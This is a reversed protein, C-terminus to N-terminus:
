NIPEDGDEAQNLQNPLAGYPENVPAHMGSSQSASAEGRELLPLVSTPDVPMYHYRMGVFGTSGMDVRFDGNGTGINDNNIGGQENYSSNGTTLGAGNFAIKLALDRDWPIVDVLFDYSNTYYTAETIDSPILTRRHRKETNFWGRLTLESIFMECAKTFLAPVDGAVKSLPDDSKMMKRVRSLPLEHSNFDIM